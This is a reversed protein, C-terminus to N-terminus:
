KSITIIWRKGKDQLTNIEINRVMDEQDAGQIMKWIQDDETYEIKFSKVYANSWGKTMVGSVYQPENFTVQMYQNSDRIHTSWGARANFRARHPWFHTPKGFTPRYIFYNSATIQSDAIRGDEMGLAVQNCELLVVFILFKNCELM